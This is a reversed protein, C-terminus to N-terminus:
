NSKSKFIQFKSSSSLNYLRTALSRKAHIIDSWKEVGFPVNETLHSLTTTTTTDDDGVYTSFKVHDKQADNWLECAVSSEMSKSSGTHNKRCDHTRVAKGEKKAHDCIRCQKCRTSYALVNGTTLGMAAGQGTLSNHGKGRKQWGMDYSVPFGILGNSDAQINNSIANEKEKQLNEKCSTSALSQIARGVERERKKFTVNNLPPINISTLSNNVHTQRIGVHLAGLAVRYNIDYTLPGHKGTRHKDSTSIINPGGCYHCEVYLCSELGIRKEQMVNDLSLPGVCATIFCM